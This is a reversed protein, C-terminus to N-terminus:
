QGAILDMANSLFFNGAGGFHVAQLSAEFGCFSVDSPIMSNFMAVPGAQAALGLLENSSGLDVLLVQGTMLTFMFPSKRAL